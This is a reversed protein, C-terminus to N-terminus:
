YVSKRLFYVAIPVGILIFWGGAVVLCGPTTESVYHGRIFGTYQGLQDGFWICAMPFILGICARFAKEASETSSYIAYVILGAICLSLFRNSFTLMQNKRVDQM